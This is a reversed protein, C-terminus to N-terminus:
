LSFFSIHTLSHGSAGVSHNQFDIRRDIAPSRTDGPVVWPPIASNQLKEPLSFSGPRPFHQGSCPSNMTLGSCRCGGRHVLIQACPLGALRHGSGCGYPPPFCWGVSDWHRCLGECKVFYIWMRDAPCHTSFSPYSVRHDSKIMRSCFQLASCLLCHCSECHTFGSLCPNSDHNQWKQTGHDQALEEAEWSDKGERLFHSLFLLDNPLEPMLIGPNVKLTQYM